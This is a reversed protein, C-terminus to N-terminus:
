GFNIWSTPLRDLRVILQMSIKDEFFDRNKEILSKSEELSM